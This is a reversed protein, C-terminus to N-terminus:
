LFDNKRYSMGKRLLQVVKPVCQTDFQAVPFAISYVTEVDEPYNLSM